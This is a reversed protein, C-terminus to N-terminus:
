QTLADKQNRGAPQAASKLADDDQFAAVDMWESTLLAEGVAISEEITM